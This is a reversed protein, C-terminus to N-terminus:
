MTLDIIVDGHPILYDLIILLEEKLFEIDEEITLFM